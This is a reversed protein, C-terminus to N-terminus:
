TTAQELIRPFLWEFDRHWEPLEVAFTQRLRTCDLRSNAPRRAPTPYEATPIPRIERCRVSDPDHRRLQEVIAMAFEHWSTSDASQLHYIGQLERSAGTLLRKAISATAAAILRSSTPAGVQDAVVSLQERQRALRVITKVFNAGHTGYVWSTRLIVHPCRAAAIAQEGALKSSGYVSLPGTPDSEVYASAKDGAYVYDTSYHILWAGSAAAEAALVGPAEGNVAYALERESEAKDVATYAAANVILQPQIKRVQERISHPDNLDLTTRDVAAIEGLPALAAQLERGVQGNCGIVLIRRSM